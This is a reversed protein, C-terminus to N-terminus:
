MPEPAPFSEHGLLIKWEGNHRVYVLTLAFSMEPATVGDTDTPAFRGSQTVSVVDPALVVTHSEDITVEMSAVGENMAAFTGRITDFGPLLAGDLAFMLDPSDLFGAMGGDLDYERWEDWTAAVVANVEAAIEAKQEETLGTTAPQCAALFTLSLVAFVLRRM